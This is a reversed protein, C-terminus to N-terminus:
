RSARGSAALSTAFLQVAPSRALESLSVPAEAPVPLTRLELACETRIGLPQRPHGPHACRSVGPAGRPVVARVGNLVQECNDTVLLVRTARLAPRGGRHLARRRLPRARLAAVVADAVRKPDTVASLDVFRVGDESPRRATSGVRVALRTKGVGGPGWLTVLRHEYLRQVTDAIVQRSWVARLRRAPPKTSAATPPGSPRFCPPCVTLWSLTCLSPDTSAGCSTSSGSISCLKARACAGQAHRPRRGPCCYRAATGPRNCAPALNPPRGLVDNSTLRCMGTDLGIRVQVEGIGPWTRASLERQIDVAATVADAADAFVALIGDGTSKARARPAPEGGGDGRRQPRHRRGGHRRHHELLLTSDEIDTLLM